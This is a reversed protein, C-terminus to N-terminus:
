DNGSSEHRLASRFLESEESGVACRDLCVARMHKGEIKSKASVEPPAENNSVDSLRYETGVEESVVSQKRVQSVFPKEVVCGSQFCNSVQTTDTSKRDSEDM